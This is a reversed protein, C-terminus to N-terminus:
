ELAEPGFSYPLLEELSYDGSETVVRDVEFERMMQLCNGCPTCEDGDLCVVAVTSISRVGSGAAAAIVNAEACVSSGYAANEVNAGTFVSGDEAVVIAGVRFESYPAYANKAADRAQELLAADGKM